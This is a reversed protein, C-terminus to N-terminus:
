IVAKKEIYRDISNTLMLQYTQLWMLLHKDTKRSLCHRQYKNNSYTTCLMDIFLQNFYKIWELFSLFRSWIKGRRGVYVNKNYNIVPSSPPPTAVYTATPQKFAMNHLNERFLKRFLQVDLSKQWNWAHSDVANLTRTSGFVISNQKVVTM